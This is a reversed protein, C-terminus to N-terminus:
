KKENSFMAKAMKNCTDLVAKMNGDSIEQSSKLVTASEKELLKASIMYKGGMDSVEVTLILDVPSADKEVVDYGSVKLIENTFSTNVMTMVASSVKYTKDTTVVSVKKNQASAVFALALVFMMLFYLKKM